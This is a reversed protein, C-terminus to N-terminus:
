LNPLEIPLATFLESSKILMESFEVIHHEHSLQPPNWGIEKRALVGLYNKVQVDCEEGTGLHPNKVVKGDVSHCSIPLIHWLKLERPAPVQSHIINDFIPHGLIIYKTRKTGQVILIHVADFYQPNDSMRYQLAIIPKFNGPVHHLFCRVCQPM